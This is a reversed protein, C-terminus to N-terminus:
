AVWEVFERLLSEALEETPEGDWYFVFQGPVAAVGLIEATYRMWPTNRPDGPLDEEHEALNTEPAYSHAAGSGTRNGNGNGNGNGSTHTPAGAAFRYVIDVRRDGETGGDFAYEFRCDHFGVVGSQRAPDVDAVDFREPESAEDNYEGITSLLAQQFGAFESPGYKEAIEATIASNPDNM